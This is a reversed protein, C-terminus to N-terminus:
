SNWPCLQPEVLILRLHVNLHFDVEALYYFKSNKSWPFIEGVTHLAGTAGSTFVISYESPSARFYKLIRERM